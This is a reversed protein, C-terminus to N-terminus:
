FLVLHTGARTLRAAFGSRRPQFVRFGRAARQTPEGGGAAEGHSGAPFDVFAM